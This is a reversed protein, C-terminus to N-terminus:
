VEMITIYAVNTKENYDFKVPRGFIKVLAVLEPLLICKLKWYDVSGTTKLQPIYEEGKVHELTFGWEEMQRAAERMEPSTAGVGEIRFKYVTESKKMRKEKRIQKEFTEQYLKVAGALTDGMVHWGFECSITYFGSPMNKRISFYVGYYYGTTYGTERLEKRDFKM